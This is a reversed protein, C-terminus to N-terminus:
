VPAPIPPAAPIPPRRRAPVPPAERLERAAGCSERIILRGRIRIEQAPAEDGGMLDLLLQASAKGMEYLPLIVTTLSPRFLRAIERNDYGVIAVDQPVHLGADFIAYMAGVAMLDSILDASESGLTCGLAESKDLRRIKPETPSGILGSAQIHYRSIM